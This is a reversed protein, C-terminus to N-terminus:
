SHGVLGLTSRCVVEFYQIDNSTQLTLRPQPRKGVPVKRGVEDSFNMLFTVQNQAKQSPGQSM